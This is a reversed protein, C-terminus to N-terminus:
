ELVQEYDLILRRLKGAGERSMGNARAEQIREELADHVADQPDEAIDTYMNDDNLGEDDEGGQSHFIGVM